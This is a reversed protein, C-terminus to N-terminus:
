STADAYRGFVDMMNYMLRTGRDRDESATPVLRLIGNPEENMEFSGAGRVARGTMVFEGDSLMAPIDDSTETGPGEIYGNKREFDEMTVDGGEAYTMPTMAGGMAAQQVYQSTVAPRRAGGRGGSLAPMRPQLGFEVPNPAARGMRRALEAEINYRGGADMTTLPTLPVGKDQEAERMALRGLGYAAGAGLGLKALTGLGGGGGGGGGGGSPNLIPALGGRTNGGAFDTVGLFDGVGGLVDGVRGFYGQDDKGGGFFLGGVGRLLGGIGRGGQAQQNKADQQQFFQATYPDSYTPQQPSTTQVFNAYQMMPDQFGGSAVQPAFGGGSPMEPAQGGGLGLMGGLSGLGSKAGYGLSRLKDLPGLQKFVEATTGGLSSIGGLLKGTGFGALGGTIAGKLGKGAAVNTAAGIAGAVLPGVGPILNALPGAIPAIKKAVKKLSKGLKKFFGFEELGTMENLSAIGVGAVAQAPDIGSEEFKKQIMSELASDEMFEAPLVVEGPTLHALVTDEGTGAQQVMLAAEGLPAQAGLQLREITKGIQKVEDPDDTQDVNMMLSQISQELSQPAPSPFGGASERMYDMEADTLDPVSMRDSPSAVGQMPMAFRDLRDQLDLSINSAPM